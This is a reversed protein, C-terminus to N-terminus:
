RPPPPVKLPTIRGEGSALAVRYVAEAFRPDHVADDPDMDGLQPVDMLVATFHTADVLVAVGCTMAFAGPTFLRTAIMENRPVSRELGEDMLWLKKPGCIDTVILGGTKHRKDVCILTFEAKRMAKLVLDEDSSPAFKTAQAYRDVARIKGPAATHVALDFAYDVDHEDELSWTRGSVLGLRRGHWLLANTSVRQLIEDHFRTSIARLHRYSAIVEARSSGATAGANFLDGQRKAVAGAM